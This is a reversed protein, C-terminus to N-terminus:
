LLPSDCINRARLEVTRLDRLHQLIEQLLDMGKDGKKLSSICHKLFERDTELAQLREYVHDVDEEIALKKNVSDFKSGSEIWDENLEGEEDFLPLLTKAKSHTIDSEPSREGNSNGLFGHSVGNEKPSSFDYHDDDKGDYDAFHGISKKVDEFSQEEGDALTFLKEELEKLEELISLREEEFEALSEDLTSLHKVPDVGLEELNLDAGIPTSINSGEQHEYFSSSDEDRGERNLDISLEDTEDANGCASSNRSRVSGDKRRMMMTMKEKAEYDFVKKRYMELEKELEQKEKERKIMIENLLQLAEQDYESQEEMMRQYQLAEMQMASKEEQLRTIMAMTQNAAIAAASREEELEAYLASLAKREAKLASKLNETTMAGDGGEMESIVNGDCCDETGSERKEFLQLKKHLNRLDDMYFKEEEVKTLESNASLHPNIGECDKCALITTEQSTASQIQRSGQDINNNICKNEDGLLGCDEDEEDEEGTEKIAPAEVNNDDSCPTRAAESVALQHCTGAVLDQIGQEDMPISSNVLEGIELKETMGYSTKEEVESVSKVQKNIEPESDSSGNLHDHKALPDEEGVSSIQSEITSSDILAIPILRDIDEGDYTSIRPPLNMLIFSEDERCCIQSMEGNEPGANMDGNGSSIFSDVDSLILHEDEKDEKKKLKIDRDKINHDAFCDSNSTDSFEIENNGDDMAQAKLTGWSPKFLLFSPYVRKSNSLSQDCCSCKSNIKDGNELRNESVWTFFGIRRSIEISNEAQKPHTSLCDKCLNQPHDALKKHNPCYGLKSIETAHAECVLDRYSNRKSTNPDLMHDVRSCWLCPPKLGFYHAFKSILFSFLSNLLLLFILIWELVAYVLIVTIKHTNRHLMTAFKNAAM